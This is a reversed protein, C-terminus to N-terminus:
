ASQERGQNRVAEISGSAAEPDLYRGSVGFRPDVAVVPRMGRDLEYVLPVGTPINLEAIEGDPVSDLHKVLARLSNGHASVLVTGGSRLDSVIADYWYPLVRGLVDKLCESAPLADSPLEAYRPDLSAALESGPDLPPPPVDYSRRWLM